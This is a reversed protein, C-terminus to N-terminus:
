ISCPLSDWTKVDQWTLNWLGTPVSSKEDQDGFELRHKECVSVCPLVEFGARWDALKMGTRNEVLGGQRGFLGRWAEPDEPPPRGSYAEIAAEEQGRAM